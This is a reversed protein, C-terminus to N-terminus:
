RQGNSLFHFCFPKTSENRIMSHLEQSFLYIVHKDNEFDIIKVKTLGEGIRVILTYQYEPLQNKITVTNFPNGVNSFAQCYRM